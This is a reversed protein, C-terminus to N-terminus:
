RSRSGREVRATLEAALTDLVRQAEHRTQSVKQEMDALRAVAEALRDDDLHTVDSIEVDAVLAEVARRHEGVRSPEVDLYRSDIAGRESGDALVRKLQEVLEDDTRHEGPTAGAARSTQESRLLDLRGQLLRRVYSLDTEEQRADDHRQSLEDDTLADVDGTFDPALVRDIRRRGGPRYETM